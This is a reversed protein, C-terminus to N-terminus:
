IRDSTTYLLTTDEAWKKEVGEYIVDSVVQGM